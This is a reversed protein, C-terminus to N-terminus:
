TAEGPGPVQFSKPSPLRQGFTIGHSRMENEASPLTFEPAPPGSPEKLRAGMTFSPANKKTSEHLVHGKQSFFFLHQFLSM